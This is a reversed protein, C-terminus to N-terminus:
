RRALAARRPHRAVDRLARGAGRGRRGPGHEGVPGTCSVAVVQEAPIGKLSRHAPARAGAGVLGRRGPGGRRRPAARDRLRAAVVAAIEGALTVGRGQARREGPRGRPRVARVARAANVRGSHEAALGDAPDHRRPDDGRGRTTAARCVATSPARPPRSTARERAYAVAAALDEEFAEVVGPQTQPRTVAMHLANPYQLGNFRWGRRKMEDNVHYIDFEDSTFAFLFTPEGLLRLEPHSRVADQM